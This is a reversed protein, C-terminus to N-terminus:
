KKRTALYGIGALAVAGGVLLLTNNKPAVPNATYTANSQQQAPLGQYPKIATIEGEPQEEDMQQSQTQMAETSITKQGTAQELAQQTKPGFDGDPEVGLQEQLVKVDEGKSGVALTKATSKKKFKIPFKAKPKPSTAVTAVPKKKTIAKKKLLGKKKKVPIAKARPESSPLTVGAQSLVASGVKSNGLKMATKGLKSDLIKSVTGGAVPIFGAAIPAVIKGVKGVQKIVTKLKVKKLAKKINLKGLGIEYGDNIEGLGRSAINLRHKNKKLLLTHPAFAAKVGNKLTINREFKDRTKKPILLTHPAIAMRVTNKLNVKRMWKPKGLGNGGEVNIHIMSEKKVKEWISFYRGIISRHRSSSEQQL